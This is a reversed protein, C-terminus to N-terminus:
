CKPDTVHVVLGPCVCEIQQVLDALLREYSSMQNNLTKLVVIGFPLNEIDHEFEFGKDITLFVEFRGRIRYVLVHDKEGTWGLERVTEVSFDPM